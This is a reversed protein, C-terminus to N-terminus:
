RPVGWWFQGPKPKRHNAIVVQDQKVVTFVATYGGDNDDRLWLEYARQCSCCYALTKFEPDTRVSRFIRGCCPAPTHVAKPKAAVDYDKPNVPETHRQVVAGPVLQDPEIEADAGFFPPEAM